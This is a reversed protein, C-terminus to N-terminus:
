LTFEKQAKLIELLAKNTIRVRHYVRKAVTSDISGPHELYIVRKLRQDPVAPRYIRDELQQEDAPNWPRELVIITDANDFNHSEGGASRTMVLIRKEGSRFARQVAAYDEGGMLAVAQLGLRRCAAVVTDRYDTAVVIQGPIDDALEVVADLKGSCDINPWITATTSAIQRLRTTQVLSTPAVLPQGELEAIMNRRMDAYAAAQKSHMPVKIVQVIKPPLVDFCQEATRQIMYHGVIAGFVDTNKNGIIKPFSGIMIDKVFIGYFRWYSSFIRPNIANLSTWIEAAHLSFPTATLLFMCESQLKRFAQFTKTKMNKIKHSEDAIVVDWKVDQLEPFVRLTSWGVIVYGCKRELWYRLDQRRRAAPIITANRGTWRKIEQHWNYRFPNKCLVLVRPPGQAERMYQETAAIAQVSKGLGPADALIGRKVLHLWAAGRIQYDHMGDLVQLRPGGRPRACCRRLWTETGASLELGEIRRLLLELIAWDQMTTLTGNKLSYDVGKLVYAFRKPFGAVVIRNKNLLVRPM